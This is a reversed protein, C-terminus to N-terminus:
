YQISFDVFQGTAARRDCTIKRINRAQREALELLFKDLQQVPGEAVLKVRGDALNRVFGTVGYGRAMSHATYRFGVGQVHGQYYVQRRELKKTSVM